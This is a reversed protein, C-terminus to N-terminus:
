GMEIGHKDARLDELGLAELYGAIRRMYQKERGGGLKRM